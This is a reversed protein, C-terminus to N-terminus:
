HVTRMPAAVEAIKLAKIARRPEKLLPERTLAPLSCKHGTWKPLDKVVAVIM